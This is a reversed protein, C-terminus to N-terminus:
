APSGQRGGFLAVLERGVATVDGAGM